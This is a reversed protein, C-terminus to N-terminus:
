LLTQSFFCWEVQRGHQDMTWRPRGYLPAGVPPTESTMLGGYRIKPLTNVFEIWPRTMASSQEYCNHKGCNEPFHRGDWHKRGASTNSRRWLKFAGVLGGLSPRTPAVRTTARRQAVIVQSKVPIDDVSGMVGDDPDGIGDRLLIIGHIHNPMVVFADLIVQRFHDPIARWHAEVMRGSDNWVVDGDEVEGFLCRGRLTCITVFYAGQQTYDFGPLRISRRHHKDPDYRGSLLRWPLDGHEPM